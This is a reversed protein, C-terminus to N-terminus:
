KARLLQSGNSRYIDVAGNPQVIRIDRYKLFEVLSIDRYGLIQTPVTSIFAKLNGLSFLFDEVVSKSITAVRLTIRNLWQISIPRSDRELEISVMGNTTSFRNIGFDCCLKKLLTDEYAERADCYLPVSLVENRPMIPIQQKSVVPMLGRSANVIRCPIAVDGSIARTDFAAAYLNDPVVKYFGPFKLTTTRFYDTYM